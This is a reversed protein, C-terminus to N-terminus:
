GPNRIKHLLMRLQDVTAKEKQDLKVRGAGAQQGHGPENEDTRM